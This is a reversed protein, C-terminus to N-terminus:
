FAGQIDLHRDFLYSGWGHGGRLGVEHIGDGLRVSERLVLRDLDDFDQNVQYLALEGAPLIDQDAAETFETHPFLARSPAPIRRSTLIHHQICPPNNREFARPLQPILDISL